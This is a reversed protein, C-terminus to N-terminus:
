AVAVEKLLGNWSMLWGEIWSQIFWFRGRPPPNSYRWRLGALRLLRRFPFGTGPPIVPGGQWQPVYICPGPGEPQPISVLSVVSSQLFFNSNRFGFFHFGSAIQCFRILFATAWFPATKSIVVFQNFHLAFLLRGAMCGDANEYSRSLWFITQCTKCDTGWTQLLRIKLHNEYLVDFGLWSELSGGRWEYVEKICFIQSM